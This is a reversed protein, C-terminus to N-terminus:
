FVGYRRTLQTLRENSEFFLEGLGDRFCRTNERQEDFLSGSADEFALKKLGDRKDPASLMALFRDYAGM